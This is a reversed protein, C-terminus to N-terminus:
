VGKEKRMLCEGGITKCWKDILPKFKIANMEFVSYNNQITNMYGWEVDTPVFMKCWICYTVITGGINNHLYDSIIRRQINDREEVYGELSRNIYKLGQSVELATETANRKIRSDRSIYENLVIDRQMLSYTFGKYHHFGCEIYRELDVNSYRTNFQDAVGQILDKNKQSIRKEYGDSTLPKPSKGKVKAEVTKFTHYIDYQRYLM